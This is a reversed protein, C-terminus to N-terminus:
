QVPAAFVDCVGNTDGTILNTATSDFAVYRGDASISPGSSANNGEGGSGVSVRKLVDTQRDHVFVDTAANGDGSVLNTAYSDFAVYRGDASISSYYSNNNGEGGSGASVREVIGTQRDYVFIDYVANGDGPVLNTSNSTFAIYRGDASISSNDSSGNGEGGAGVSVRETVGAQRDRVFIDAFGNGDGSVLNAAYSNFAVYRGDASIFPFSSIGSGEGGSGVSVRETVGTNRDRVFVDMYGNEDGSVLNDADSDFAVYRGDASISSNNCWGNGEGNLGVSVRETVGTQRDHIFIDAMGNTDDPVLNTAVSRFAVYRGDASISPFYCEGNGEGNYGISVRETVGTARDHVFIDRVGNGDDIILNTAGSDFAVWRGDASISCNGCGDNAEVGEGFSVRELPLGAPFGDDPPTPSPCGSAMIALVCICPILVVHQCKNM